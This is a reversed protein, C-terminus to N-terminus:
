EKLITLFDIVRKWTASTNNGTRQEVLMSSGHVGNKSIYTELGASKALEFQAKVSEYEMERDPRLILAPRDLNKMLDNPSCEGMPEGSAPSFALVAEVMEPHEHAFKIVLAASYSSGWIAMKGTFGEERAMSVSAELDAYAECYGANNGNNNEVTRNYEGFLQGGSSQDVAIVNYGNELLKPIIPDYEGRANARAQHFLFIVPASSDQKYVDAFLTTGGSSIFKVEERFGANNRDILAYQVSSRKWSGNEIVWNMTIRYSIFQDIGNQISHILTKGTVSGSKGSVNIELDTMDYQLVELEGNKIESTRRTMFELWEEKGISKNTGTTHQYQSGTMSELGDIDGAKFYQNFKVVANELSEKSLNSSGTSCNMLLLLTIYLLPQISKM